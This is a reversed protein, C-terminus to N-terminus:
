ENIFKKFAKLASTLKFNKNYTEYGNKVIKKSLDDNKFIKKSFFIFKEINEALLCNFGSQLAPNGLSVNNHAIIPWRNALATVIRSRNGLPVDIPFLCAHCKLAIKNINKKFGLYKINKLKQLKNLINEPFDFIGCIYITFGGEGWIKLYSPYIKNLLYDIASKSGLGKLNGFFIFSPKSFKKLKKYSFQIHWPYPLYSSNINIKRLHSLNTYSGSLIKFRNLNKKYFIKWKYILCFIIPFLFFNKYSYKLDYYYHYYITSFNLDGLWVYLKKTPLLLKNVFSSAAIDLAFVMDPNFKLIKEKIKSSFDFTSINQFFFNYKNLTYLKDLTIKCFTLNKKKSFQKLFSGKGIIQRNNKEQFSLLFVQYNCKLFFNIYYFILITSSGENKSPLNGCTVILIKKKEV